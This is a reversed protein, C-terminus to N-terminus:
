CCALKFSLHPPIVGHESDMPLFRVAFRTKYGSVQPYVLANLAIDLKLRLLDADDANGQYFGNHSIKPIFIASQRMLELISELAQKLPRLSDLWNKVSEDRISQPLHLWLHLTPLDFSCCGGPISLRQRVMSIIRDEKIYQSLRPAQSLAISREKLQQSLNYIMATDADPTGLWLKLKVQQRDLEKLLESRVEGRELIEILEAITRFFSLSSAQSDLHSQKELQQLSSEIRLWSRMKENLPHEFIITSTADSM